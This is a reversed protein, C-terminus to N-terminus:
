LYYTAPVRIGRGFKDKEQLWETEGKSDDHPIERNQM